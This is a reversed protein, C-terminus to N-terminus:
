ELSEDGNFDSPSLAPASTRRKVGDDHPGSLPMVVREGHASASECMAETILRLEVARAHAAAADKKARTAACRAASPDRLVTPAARPSALILHALGSQEIAEALCGGIIAQDRAEQLPSPPM